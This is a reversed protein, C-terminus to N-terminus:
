KKRFMYHRKPFSSPLINTIIKCSDGFACVIEFAAIFFTGMTLLHTPSIAVGYNVKYSPVSLRLQLM